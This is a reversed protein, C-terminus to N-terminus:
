PYDVNVDKMPDPLFCSRGPLLSLIVDFIVELMVVKCLMRSNMNYNMSCYNKNFDSSVYLAIYLM